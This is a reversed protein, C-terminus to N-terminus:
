SAITKLAMTSYFDNIGEHTSDFDTLSALHLDFYKQSIIGEIVCSALSHAYKYTPNIEAIIDAMRHCPQKFALFFGEKNEQDVSKTLYTKSSEAIVIANLSKEDMFDTNSPIKIPSCLTNIAAKLKEKPDTINTCAFAMSYEMYGWYWSLIYILLNHKNHFYRYISSETTGLEQGLKKFTFSEFGMEHIMICSNRLIKKGLDSTMPDKSYLSDNVHIQIMSLLEKM